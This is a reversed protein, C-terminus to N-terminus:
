PRRDVRRLRAVRDPNRGSREPRCRRVAIARDREYELAADREVASERTVLRAEILAAEQPIRRDQRAVQVAVIAVVAARSVALRRFLACLAAAAGLVAIVDDHREIDRRRREEVPERDARAAG